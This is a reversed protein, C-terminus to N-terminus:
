GVVSRFGWCVHASDDRVVWISHRAIRMRGLFVNAEDGRM